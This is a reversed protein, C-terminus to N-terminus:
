VVAQEVVVQALHVQTTQADALRAKLADCLAMLNRVKAVIRRQEALPALPVLMRKLHTPGFHMIAAGKKSADIQLLFEKSNLFAILYDVYLCEYPQFRILGTYVISGVTEEGVKAVKGLSASSSLVIDGLELKFHAWKKDVMDEDLFNCGELSVFDNHMGAIRILPIGTERFDKAMIGPGEQFFAIDPLRTWVWSPPLEYPREEPRILSSSAQNRDVGKKALKTNEAAVKELSEDAPVDNGHQPVLRGTVALQLIAQKLQDVSHETTFLTDFHNATRVWAAALEQPSAVRTLTDLLTAILTQHAELGLTQKQELQECLAMLEDVKAVIRRQEALPPVVVLLNELATKNLNNIGIGKGAEATQSRYLPTKFFAGLFDWLEATMPRVVGCFAGFTAVDSSKVQAAKGVLDASGSSMAILLDGVTLMQDERVLERPVYVLGDSNICEGINNARLLAIGGAFESDAADQKRYTVGRVIQAINGLREWEWGVPLEFPIESDTINPIDRDNRTRGEKAKTAKESAVRKLFQSAPEDNPDQRVLRGRVLLELILERLKKIGYAQRRGNAGRGANSKTILASSWLDLHKIVIESM